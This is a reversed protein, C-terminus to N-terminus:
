HKYTSDFVEQVDQARAQAITAQNWNDWAAHDKLPTFQSIDRKIGRKFERVPDTVRM